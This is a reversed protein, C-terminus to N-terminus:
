AARRQQRQYREKRRDMQGDLAAQIGQELLFAWGNVRYAYGYRVLEDRGAKSCIDGDWTPGNRFLQWLAELADPRLPQIM